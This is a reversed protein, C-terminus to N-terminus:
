QNIIDEYDDINSTSPTQNAKEKNSNDLLKIENKIKAVEFDHTFVQLVQEWEHGNLINNKICFNLTKDAPENDIDTLAKLIVQLHDRTYRPYQKKIQQLYTMALNSDSFCDAVQQMMEILSKSTDRKHNTNSINQGKLLSLTHTCILKNDCSYIELISGKEKVIVKTETAQYTGMPLTYFNSKYNITNNKRVLYMKHEKNEIVIPTFPNLHEKEIMFVSEPSKKTFNHPLYNATRSLWALTEQNLIVEDVYLRNYLFNKKVYQVVNEVKGKSEPDAKRCFHLKFSRSKTYQKFTSTLIIDGLNEDVVMTRDQDYVISQPIGGFFGFAKEHAIAVTEATFPKGLFWVFKMRSRSLVMVFFRVKKRKNDSTRMNYEGFDVQAQQGYPLEDIPFYDRHNQVYPINYKQRIYMVFNYVTRPSAEPFDIHAEKLWDHIQAASTDQFTSLKEFVFNEYDSLIKKRECSSNLYQEYGTESMNLYKKVTRADM